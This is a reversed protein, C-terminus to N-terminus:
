RAAVLPPEAPRLWASADRAIATVSDAWRDTSNPCPVLDLREGGHARFDEVARMGLEEITELCDAVFAPSLIVARKVGERAAKVVLEDTYPRIWPDRGLRSQFCIVRSEEPIDLDAALRRAMAFCQARYCDANAEVIEDCCGDRGLCHAGTRDSKRVHREPLGHFSFFVREPRVDELVPRALEACSQLYGPHDYFPPVVHLYPVNWLKSAQAFVEELSSGTAASSYQPYLPFVVIRQVGGTHLRALGARISPEGYRMAVEVVVGEGLRASVKAALDRTHFLLPSGRETWIKEYAAASEKPRTPLIFLNLTLWRQWSPIDLVRPDWLFERLYARVDSVEPSEPTGLNILLLGTKSEFPVNRRVPLRSADSDVLSGEIRPRTRIRRERGGPRSM